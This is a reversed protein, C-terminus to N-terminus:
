EKRRWFRGPLRRTFRGSAGTRSNGNARASGAAAPRYSAPAPATDGPVLGEMGKILAKLDVASPDPLSLFYQLMEQWAPLGMQGAAFRLHELTPVLVGRDLPEGAQLKKLAARAESLGDAAMDSFIQLYQTDKAFAAEKVPEFIIAQPEAAHVPEGRQAARCKEIKAGIRAVLAKSGEPAPDARRAPFESM